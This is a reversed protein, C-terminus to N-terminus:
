IYYLDVGSAELRDRVFARRYPLLKAALILDTACLYLAFAGLITWFPHCDSLALAADVALLTLAFPALLIGRFVSVDTCTQTRVRGSFIGFTIQIRAWPLKGVYHWLVAHVGEHLAVYLGLLAAGALLWFLVYQDIYLISEIINKISLLLTIVDFVLTAALKEAKTVTILRHRAMGQQIPGDPTHTHSM